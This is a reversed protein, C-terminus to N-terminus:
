CVLLVSTDPLHLAASQGDTQVTGTIEDVDFHQLFKL